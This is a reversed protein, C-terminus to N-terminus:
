KFIITFQGNVTFTYNKLCIIRTTLLSINLLSFYTQTHNAEGPHQTPASILTLTKVFLM